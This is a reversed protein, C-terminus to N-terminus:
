LGLLKKAIKEAAGKGAVLECARSMGARRDCDKLLAELEEWLWERREKEDPLDDVVVAAGAEVLKEANFYQQRDKHHPYPMCISAVGAAAYEAVSGAGSRGIVLDAGALLSAMDDYYDLVKVNIKADRYRAKVNDFNNEGTLHVIQWEDAYEDLEGLLSCVAENISVSGSSAGTVVLTKKDSDLGLENKAKNADARAFGNRLPCGFVNIKTGRRNFYQETEGFQVFVEDAWRKILKNARGPKVDVNLLKVKAGLKHGALCVPAAVYGGVGIVVANDSAAIKEKALKCSKLFLGYFKFLKDPRFSFGVGPLLTYGFNTGSLIKSDIIRTSIFFHVKAQPEFKVIQEAIAIAPYIHGGTGGGAFFYSKSSM